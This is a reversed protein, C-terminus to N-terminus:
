VQYATLNEVNKHFEGGGIQQGYANKFIVQTFPYYINHYKCVKINGNKKYSIRISKNFITISAIKRDYNNFIFKSEKDITSDYNYVVIESVNNNVVM